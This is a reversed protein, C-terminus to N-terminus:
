PVVLIGNAQDGLGSVRDTIGDLKRGTDIPASRFNLVITFYAIEKTPVVVKFIAIVEPCTVFLLAAETLLNVVVEGVIDVPDAAIDLASVVLVTFLAAQRDSIPEPSLELGFYGLVIAGIATVVMFGTGRAFQFGVSACGGAIGSYHGSGWAWGRGPGGHRLHEVDENARDLQWSPNSRGLAWGAGFALLLAILICAIGTIM